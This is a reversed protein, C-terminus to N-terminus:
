LNLLRRSKVNQSIRCRFTGGCFKMLEWPFMPDRTVLRHFTICSSPTNERNPISQTNSQDGTTTQSGMGGPETASFTFRRPTNKTGEGEFLEGMVTEM